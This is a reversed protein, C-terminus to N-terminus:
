AAAHASQYPSYRTGDPEGGTDSLGEESYKKALTDAAKGGFVDAELDDKLCEIFPSESLEHGAILLMCSETWNDHRSPEYGAIIQRAIGENAMIDATKGINKQIVSVPLCYVAALLLYGLIVSGCFCGALILFKKLIKGM